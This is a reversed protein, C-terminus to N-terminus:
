LPYIVLTDDYFLPVLLRGRTADIGIDSPAALNEVRAAFSNGELEYVLSGEWSTVFMRGRYEAIGDLSGKEPKLALERGGTDNLRYLEGSGFTAVWLGEPTYLLGNPRGLDNGSAVVSVGGRANIRYIADRGSPTFGTTIGSDSVFLEGREGACVDNLFTANPIKTEGLPRGTKRDFRRVSDIDAVYLLDGLLAMGKPANLTVDPKAADIWRLTEVSGDPRVRAIFARDDVDLPSGEVNSVLYVDAVPDHLVSEPRRFGVDRVTIPEGLRLAARPQAVPAPAHGQSPASSAGGCASLSLLYLAAKTAKRVRKAGNGM